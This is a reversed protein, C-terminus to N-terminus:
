ISSDELGMHSSISQTCKTETLSAQCYCPLAPHKYLTHCCRDYSDTTGSLILVLLISHESHGRSSGLNM